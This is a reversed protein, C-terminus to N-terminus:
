RNLTQNSKLLRGDRSTVFSQVVRDGPLVTHSYHICRQNVDIVVKNVVILPSGPMCGLLDAQEKTAAVAGIQTDAYDIQVGYTGELLGYLETDEVLDDLFYPLMESSVYITDIGVPIDEVSMLRVVVQVENNEPLRLRQAVEKTAPMRRKEIIHRHTVSDAYTFGSFGFTTNITEPFVMEPMKVFTGKGRYRVLMGDDVLEQVARRVTIRSVGHQACLESETPLKAGPAYEGSIIRNRLDTEIASYLLENNPTEM